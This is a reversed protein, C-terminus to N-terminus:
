EGMFEAVRKRWTKGVRRVCGKWDEWDEVVEMKLWRGGRCGVARVHSRKGDGTKRAWDIMGFEELQATSCPTFLCIGSAGYFGIAHTEDPYFKPAFVLTLLVDTARPAYPTRAIDTLSVSAAALPLNPIHTLASTLDLFSLSHRAILTIALFIAPNSTTATYIPNSYTPLLAPLSTYTDDDVPMEHYVYDHARNPSSAGHQRYEDFDTCIRTYPRRDLEQLYHEVGTLEDAFEDPSGYDDEVSNVVISDQYDDWPYRDLEYRDSPNVVITSPASQSRLSSM